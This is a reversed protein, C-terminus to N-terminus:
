IMAAIAEINDSNDVEEGDNLCDSCEELKDLINRAKEFGGMMEVFKTAVEVDEKSIQEEQEYNDGNNFPSQSITMTPQATIGVVGAMPAGTDMMGAIESILNM